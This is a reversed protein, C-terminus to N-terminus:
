LLCPASTFDSVYVRVVHQVVNAYPLYDFYGIMQSVFESGGTLYSAQATCFTSILFVVV